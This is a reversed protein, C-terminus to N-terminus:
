EQYAGMTPKKDSVAPEIHMSTLQCWFDPTFKPPRAGLNDGAHNPIKKKPRDAWSDTPLGCDESLVRILTTSVGNSLQSQTSEM